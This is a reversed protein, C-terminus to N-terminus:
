VECVLLITACAVAPQAPWAPVLAKGCTCAHAALVLVPVQLNSHHQCAPMRVPLRVHLSAPIRVPLCSPPARCVACAGPWTDVSAHRLM